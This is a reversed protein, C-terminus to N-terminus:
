RRGGRSVVVLGVLDAEAIPEYMKVAFGSPVDYCHFWAAGIRITVRGDPLFGKPSNWPVATFNPTGNPSNM